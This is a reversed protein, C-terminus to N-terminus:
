KTPSYRKSLIAKSPKIGEIMMVFDTWKIKWSHSEKDYIPPQFTGTELRKIYLVFGGRQWQLIKITDKKRGLFIFIEGSLPDRNMRNCVVAYLADIGKRMDVVENCLYYRGSENLSFM